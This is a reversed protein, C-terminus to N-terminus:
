QKYSFPLMRKHSLPPERFINSFSRISRVYVLVVKSLEFTLVQTNSTFIRLVYFLATWKPRCTTLLGVTLFMGLTWFVLSRPYTSPLLIHVFHASFMKVYWIGLFSDFIVVTVDFTSPLWSSSTEMPWLHSLKLKFLILIAISWVWWIHKFEHTWSSM